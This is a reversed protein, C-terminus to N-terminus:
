KLVESRRAAIVIAGITAVLLLTAALEVAVLYDTFLTEGIAAVNDAPMQARGHMDLQPPQNPRAGSFPSLNLNSDPQLVGRLEIQLSRGLSVIEKLNARLKQEAAAAKAQQVALETKLSDLEKQLVEHDKGAAAKLKDLAETIQEDLASMRDRGDQWRQVETPLNTLLKWLRNKYTAPKGENAKLPQVLARLDEIFGQDGLTKDLREPTPANAAVDMLKVHGDVRALLDANSGVLKIDPEHERLEDLHKNIRALKDQNDPMATYDRQLVCLLAALLVAGAICALLPERSRYDANDLGSQQALMIVFLFTVVIAGAYIIITAAMLFPAAQLLFLGCTSLVVLAFSLAARVPQTQAVMVGGSLVALGAFAYFLVTEVWIPEPQILQVGLLLLAALGLMGGLAPPFRRVRPLLLYVSAMGLAVVALIAWHQELFQFFGASPEVNKTQLFLPHM